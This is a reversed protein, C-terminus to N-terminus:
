ESVVWPMGGVAAAVADIFVRVKAPAHRGSPMVAQVPVAGGWGPFVDVLEGRALHDCTHFDPLYALGVGCHAADALAIGSNAAMPGTVTVSAHAEGHTLHWTSPSRHHSYVLCRHAALAAISPPHGHRDLYGPSAVVRRRAAGLRRVVLASDPLQGARVAVDFGEGVLDIMRDSYVADLAVAPWAAMFEAVTRSLWRMGIGTPLTVRLTGSPRTQQASVAEAAGDVLRMAEACEAHFREGAETLTLRRTSRRLLPTGLRAELRSVLKSVYSSTVGLRDAAGAFSSAAVVAVFAEVEVMRSM